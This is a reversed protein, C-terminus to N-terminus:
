WGRLHKKCESEPTRANICDTYRELMEVRRGGIARVDRARQWEQHAPDEGHLRVAEAFDESIFNLRRSEVRMMEAFLPDGIGMESLYDKVLLSLKRYSDQSEAYSLRAFEEPRFYPRHIGIRAGSSVVRSVGGALVLVCASSCQSEGLVWVEAANRRLLEGLKMAALVEGGRSNLLVRIVPSKDHNFSDAVRRLEPLARALKEVASDRIDGSISIHAGDRVHGKLGTLPKGPVVQVVTEGLSPVAAVARLAVVLFTALFVWLKM